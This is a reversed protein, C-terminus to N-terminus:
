GSDAREGWSALCAQGLSLCGDNAPLRSHILIRFGGARLERLTMRLLLMNQFVGGTLGVVGIGHRERLREAMTRFGKALTRHFMRAKRAPPRNDRILGAVAPLLNLILRGDDRDISFPYHGRSPASTEALAELRSPLEGDYGSVDGLGLLTSVGDFLRGCSSTGVGGTRRLVAELLVRGRKGYKEAFAVTPGDPGFIAHLLSLSFRWPERVAADGSPLFVEQLNGEREFRRFDGVFFEGGWIKGDEGYGTGDMAVGIVRERVNREALLAALHARHHQVERIRSGAFSDALRRNPYLPHLDVAVM